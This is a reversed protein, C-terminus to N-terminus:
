EDATDDFLDGADGGSVGGDAILAPLETLKRRVEEITCITGQNTPTAHSL